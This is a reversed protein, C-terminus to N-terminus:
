SYTIVWWVDGACWLGCSLDGVATAGTSFARNEKRRSVESANRQDSTPQCRLLRRLLVVPYYCRRHYAVRITPHWRRGRRGMRHVSAQVQLIAGSPIVPPHARQVLMHAHQLSNHTHTHTHTHTHARTCARTHSGLPESQRV